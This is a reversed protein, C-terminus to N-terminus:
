GGQFSRGDRSRFVAEVRSWETDLPPAQPSSGSGAPENDAAFLETVSLGRMDDPHGYGFMLAGKSNVELLRGTGPDVGGGIFTDPASLMAEPLGEPPREQQFIGSGEM